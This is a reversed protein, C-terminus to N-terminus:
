TSNGAQDQLRIRESELISLQEETLKRISDSNGSQYDALVELAMLLEEELDSIKHQSLNLESELTQICQDNENLLQELQTCQQQYEQILKPNATKELEKVRDRLKYIIDKQKVIVNKMEMVDKDLLKRVDKRPSKASVKKKASDQVILRGKGDATTDVVEVKGNHSSAEDMVTLEGIPRHKMREGSIVEGVDAIINFLQTFMKYLDNRNSANRSSKVLREFSQEFQGKKGGWCDLVTERFNDKDKLKAKLNLITSNQTQIETRLETMKLHLDEDSDKEMMLLEPEAFSETEIVEPEPRLAELIPSVYEQYNSWFNPSPGEETRENLLRQEALLVFHRLKAVQLVPLDEPTPPSTDSNRLHLYAETDALWQSLFQDATEPGLQEEQTEETKPTTMIRTLLLTTNKNLEALNKLKETLEKKRQHAKRVYLGLLLLGSISLAALQGLVLNSTSIDM